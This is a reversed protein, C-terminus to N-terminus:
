LSGEASMSYHLWERGDDERAVSVILSQRKVKNVYMRGHDRDYIDPTAERWDAPLVRPLWNSLIARARHEPLMRKRQSEELKVIDIGREKSFRDTKDDM